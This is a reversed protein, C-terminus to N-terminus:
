GVVAQRLASCDADTARPGDDGTIARGIAKLVNGPSRVNKPMMVQPERITGRILVSGPLRLSVKAKPSGTLTASLAEDPFRISGQGRSQSISTDVVMSSIAGVGGKMNLGIAACRLSTRDGNGSFVAGIDFGLLRALKEPLAGNAAYLGVRGNSRGVAERITSGVGILRVRGSVPADIAGDGGALADISSGKLDLALTITPEPEGQRQDVIARGVIEGKTMRIVLDEIKLLRHDLSLVGSAARLSSPRRASVIRDIRFDIRGDTDDIKGINVRLNPVIRIGQSRELTMAAANGADSALDEFDLASSHVTGDLRTRGGVKVVDLRGDIPSSGIKGSLRNISWREPERRVDAHLTVPQTGFLGAEIVRDILKLDDARADMTFAMRDTQLPAAMAGKFRMTLATGEIAAEFPWSQGHRPSPGEARLTVPNGDVKGTGEARIGQGSAMNVQLTFERSQKEDRYRVTGDAQVLGAVDLGDGGNDSADKRWNERGDALRVLDLRFGTVSLLHPRVRGILLPLVPVRLRLSRISALQGPGAWAPQPISVDRVMITPTFSLATERSLSGITVPRGTKASLQREVMPKAWGVPFAALLITLGLVIVAVTSAIVTRRGGPIPM